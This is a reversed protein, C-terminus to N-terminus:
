QPPKSSITSVKGTISFGKFIFNIDKGQSCLDTTGDVNLIVEKPEFSWGAPPEIQFIILTGIFLV